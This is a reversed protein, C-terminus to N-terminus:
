AVVGEAVRASAEATFAAVAIDAERTSFQEASVKSTQKPRKLRGLALWNSEAIHLLRSAVGPRCRAPSGLAHHTLRHTQTDTYTYINNIHRCDPTHAHTHKARSYTNYPSIAYAGRHAFLVCEVVGRLAKCVAQWLGVEHVAPCPKSLGFMVEVAKDREGEVGLQRGEAPGLVARLLRALAGSRRVLARQPPAVPVSLAHSRLETTKCFPM